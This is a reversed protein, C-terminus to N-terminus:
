AFIFTNGMFITPQMNNHSSGGGISSTTFNHTHDGANNITLAIPPTFLNAEGVTTDLNTSATNAGDSAMLGPNGTANSTHTHLGSSDTTGTHIHGPIESTSLTHTEAGITQGLAHDNNVSAIVRGSTNPLNFSNGSGGFSYGIISFLNPYNNKSLSRGNCILWGNHDGSQISQKIDGVDPTRIYVWQDASKNYVKISGYIKSINKSHDSLSMEKNNVM